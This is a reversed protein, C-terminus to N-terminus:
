VEDRREKEIENYRNLLSTVKDYDTFSCVQRKQRDIEDLMEAMDDLLSLKAMIVSPGQESDGLVWRLYREIESDTSDDPDLGRICNLIEEPTRM